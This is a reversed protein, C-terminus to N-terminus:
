LVSTKEIFSEITPRQSASEFLKMFEVEYLSQYTLCEQM